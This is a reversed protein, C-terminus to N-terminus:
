IAQVTSDSPQQKEGAAEQVLAVQEMVRAQAPLSHTEPAKPASDKSRGYTVQLGHANLVKADQVNHESSEKNCNGLNRFVAWEDTRIGNLQLLAITDLPLGGSERDCSTPYMREDWPFLRMGLLALLLEVICLVLGSIMAAWQEDPLSWRPTVYHARVALRLIMDVIKGVIMHANVFKGMGVAAYEKHLEQVTPAILSSLANFGWMAIMSTCTVFILVVISRFDVETRGRETNLLDMLAFVPAFFAFQRIAVVLTRIDERKVRRKCCPWWFFCCLPPANFAKIPEEPLAARLIDFGGALVNFLSVCKFLSASFHLIRIFAMVGAISPNFVQIVASVSYSAPLMLLFTVLDARIGLSIMRGRTFGLRKAAEAHKNVTYLSISLTSVAAMASVVWMIIFGWPPDDYIYEWADQFERASAPLTTTQPMM